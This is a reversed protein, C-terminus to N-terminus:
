HRSETHQISISATENKQLRIIQSGEFRRNLWRLVALVFLVRGAWKSKAIRKNTLRRVILRIISFM